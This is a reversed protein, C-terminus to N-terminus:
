TGSGSGSNGTDDGHPPPPATDPKVTDPAFGKTSSPTRILSGVLARVDHDRRRDVRRPVGRLPHHPGHHQGRRREREGERDPAPLVDSTNLSSRVTDLIQEDGIMGSLGDSCLLYTAMQPNDAMLDVLVHIGIGLARTIVNRQLEARQEEAPEPMAMLYNNLLSHDRTLLQIARSRVRYARSDGVHGM